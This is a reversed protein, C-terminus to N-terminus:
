RWCLVILYFAGKLLCVAGLALAFARWPRPRHRGPMRELQVRPAHLHLARRAHPSLPAKSSSM